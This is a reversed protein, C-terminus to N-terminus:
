GRQLAKKGRGVKKIDNAIPNMLGIVIYFYFEIYSIRCNFFAAAAYGMFMALLTWTLIREKNDETNIVKKVAKVVSIILLAMYNIFSFVGQTALVHIYANHAHESIYSGPVYNPNESYCQYLNSFGIGTLWHKPVSSLCFYWIRLRGSGLDGIDTAAEGKIKFLRFLILPRELPNALALLCGIVVLIVSFLFQAFYNKYRRDNKNKKIMYAISVAFFFIVVADGVWALRALSNISCYTCIVLLIGSLVKVSRQEAFIFLGSFLGFFLVTLGGFFNSNQTVGYLAYKDYSPLLWQQEMICIDFSQLIGVIFQLISIGVFSVIVLKRYKPSSLRFAAYMVCCYAVVEQPSEVDIFPAEQISGMNSSFIISLFMFVFTSIFFFDSWHRKGKELYINLFCLFLGAIAYFTLVYESAAFMIGMLQSILEVVPIIIMFSIVYFAMCRESTLIDTYKSVLEDLEHKLSGVM